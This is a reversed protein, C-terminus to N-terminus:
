PNPPAKGGPIFLVQGLQIRSPDSLRNADIIDQTKAGTKHAILGVSDGKVVSYSIGQKPYSDGFAGAKPLSGAPGAAPASASTPGSAFHPGAVPKAISDLAANTQKALNEMQTGVQALIETRSEAVASKIAANLEAVAGNLQATSVVDHGGEAAAVKSRLVANDHELQELRLSLDNVHQTLGRLDERMDAADNQAALPAPTAAALALVACGPWFRHLASWCPM